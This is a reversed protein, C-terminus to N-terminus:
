DVTIRTGRAVGEAHLDPLKNGAVDFNDASWSGTFRTRRNDLRLTVEMVFTGTFNGDADWNWAMHKLKFTRPGEQKWIGVCVNGLAPPLGRSLMMETGDSHFQQFSQDYLDPGTGILFEANWLGVISGTSGQEITQEINAASTVAATLQTGGSIPRGKVVPFCTAQAEAAMTMCFVLSAASVLAGRIWVTSHESKM